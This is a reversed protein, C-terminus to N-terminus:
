DKHNPSWWLLASRMGDPRSYVGNSLRLRRNLTSYILEDYIIGSAELHLHRKARSFADEVTANIWNAIDDEVLV